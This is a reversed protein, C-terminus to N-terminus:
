DALRKGRNLDTDYITIPGNRGDGRSTDKEKHQDTYM